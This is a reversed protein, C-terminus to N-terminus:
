ILGKWSKRRFIASIQSMSVSFLASLERLLYGAARLRRIEKVQIATLVSSTHREGESLRGKSDRDAINTAMTGLFLHEPNVCSPMDCKHLVCIGHHGEGTPVEGNVLQWSFRHAYILLARDRFRGYGSPLKYGTWLWCTDTKNVKSWFREESSRKTKYKSRLM